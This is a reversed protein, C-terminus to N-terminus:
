LKIALAILVMLRALLVLSIASIVMNAVRAVVESREKPVVDIPAAGVDAARYTPIAVTREVATESRTGLPAPAPQRDPRVVELHNPQVSSTPVTMELRISQSADTIRRRLTSWRRHLGQAREGPGDNASGIDM